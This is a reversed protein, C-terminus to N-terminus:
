MLSIALMLFKLIQHQVHQIFISHLENTELEVLSIYLMCSYVMIISCSANREDEYYHM